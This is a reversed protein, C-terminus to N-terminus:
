PISCEGFILWRLTCVGTIICMTDKNAKLVQNHIYNVMERKAYDNFHKKPFIKMLKFFEFFSKFSEYNTLAKCKSLLIFVYAFQILKEQAKFYCWISTTKHNFPMEFNCIRGQEKHSCM